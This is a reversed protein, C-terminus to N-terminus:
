LDQYFTLGNQNLDYFAFERTGWPTDRVATHESFIGKNQYEAYLTDVDAVFFRLMPREVRVWEQGDHWQLHLEVEDRRVGAYNPDAADQFAVEFGLAQTYFKIAIAVDKCPLVPHVAQFM